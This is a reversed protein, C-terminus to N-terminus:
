GLLFGYGSRDRGQSGGAGEISQTSERWGSGGMRRRGRGCSGSRRRWLSRCLLRSGRVCCTSEGGQSERYGLTYCIPGAIKAWGKLSGGLDGTQKVGQISEHAHEADVRDEDGLSERLHKIPSCAFQEVTQKLPLLIQTPSPGYLDAQVQRDDLFPHQLDPQWLTDRHVELWHPLQEGPELYSGKVYM